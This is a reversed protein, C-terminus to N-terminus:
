DEDGLLTDMRREVDGKRSGHATHLADRKVAEYEADDGVENRVFAEVHRAVDQVAEYAESAEPAERRIREARAVGELHGRERDALEEDSLQQWGEQMEETMEGTDYVEELNDYQRATTRAQMEVELAAALLTELDDRDMGGERGNEVYDRAHDVAQQYRTFSGSAAYTKVANHLTGLDLGEETVTEGQEREEHYSGLHTFREVADGVRDAVERVRSLYERTM